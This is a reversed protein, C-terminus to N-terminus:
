LRACHDVNNTGIAARMMKQFVYNEENTCKASAVGMIADPGYTNKTELIKSAILDFAEEWSAEELVGNKRILPTKLRDGHDIFRFGFKGKVCLMGRNAGGNAPEVGIIKGNKVMLYMACGVGCYPCVTLVKEANMASQRRKPILAGTPCNSVCNGCSVCPSEEMTTESAPTVHTPFGRGSLGLAGVCQLSQCVRVCKRCLICKGRDFNFFPNSTDVEYKNNEGPFQTFEVGYEECYEHLKCQGLKKCNFCDAEHTSLILDLVDRRAKRVKESNTHVVMGERAFAACSHDLNRAGEVEVYCMRCAGDPVLEDLYCLAPIEINNRKCAQLITSGEVAEILTGNVTLKITKSM